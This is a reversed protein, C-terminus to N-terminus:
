TKSSARHITGLYAAFAVTEAAGLVGPGLVSMRANRQVRKSSQLRRARGESGLMGSALEARTLWSNLWDKFVASSTGM